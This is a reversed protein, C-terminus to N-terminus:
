TRGRGEAEFKQAFSLKSLLKACAVERPGGHKSVLEPEIPNVASLPM